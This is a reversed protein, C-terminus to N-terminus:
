KTCKRMDSVGLLYDASVDFFKMIKLLNVTKVEREGNEYQSLTSVGLGAMEALVELTLNREIRLAKLREGSVRVHEEM